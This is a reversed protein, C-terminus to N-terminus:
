GIWVATEEDDVDEAYYHRLLRKPAYPQLWTSEFFATWLTPFRRRSSQVSGDANLLQAGVAGVQEHNQLFTVMKALAGEHVM